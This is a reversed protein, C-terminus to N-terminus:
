NKPLAVNQLMNMPGHNKLIQMQAEDRVFLSGAFGLSNISISEFGEQARPIILMWERTALLNYAGKPKGFTVGSEDLLGVAHLSERYHKLTVEAAKFPSDVLSPDFNVFVQLFPMGTLTGISGEFKATELLPEIPIKLGSPTLPLKILQLHKHPQSAGAVQGGNYFVLGDIQKLCAWMAIFDQLTLLSEQEEFARTIMLLHHEVVNYKNLICVHTDSIDTVFLDKDYPLFPNIKKVKVKPTVASLKGQKKKAEEKRALNALVRVLFKVGDQEVFEFNTPISLLAGCELAHATSNVVSTWLTGPQLLLKGESM